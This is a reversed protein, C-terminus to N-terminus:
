KVLSRKLVHNLVPILWSAYEFALGVRFRQFLLLGVTSGRHSELELLHFYHYIAVEYVESTQSMMSVNNQDLYPSVNKQSQSTGRLVLHYFTFQLLHYGFEDFTNPCIIKLYIMLIYDSM